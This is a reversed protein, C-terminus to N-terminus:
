QELLSEVNRGQTPLRLRQAVDLARPFRELIPSFLPREEFLKDGLPLRCDSHQDIVGGLPPPFHTACSDYSAGAGFIVMLMLAHRTSRRPRRYIDQIRFQM